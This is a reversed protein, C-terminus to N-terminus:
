FLPQLKTLPDVLKSNERMEFHLGGGEIDGETGIEGINQGAQVQQEENVLVRALGAYLTFDGQEHELLIYKGLVPSDGTRKVQGDLVARVASGVPASIDIGNHFREMDDLPDITMGYERVVKGSVPLPSMVGTMDLNPNSNSNSVVPQAAGFVPWESNAVQFGFQMVREFAPQYDWESTLVSRLNERAEVGWPVNTEKVMWFALFILLAAIVRYFHHRGAGWRRPKRWHPQQYSSVWDDEKKLGGGPKFSIGKM